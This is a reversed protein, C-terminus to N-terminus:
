KIFGWYVWVKTYNSNQPELINRLFNGRGQSLDKLSLGMRIDQNSSESVIPLVGLKETHNKVLYNSYNTYLDM